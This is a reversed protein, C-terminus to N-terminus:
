RVQWSHQDWFKRLDGVSGNFANHELPRDMNGFYAPSRWPGHHYHMPISRKHWEVGAYQWLAWDNWIGYAEMLDRPTQFGNDHSYLAIWYPCEGIRRKATSPANRLTARLKDSNELYLVPVVGTRQEIRDIFAIIDPVSSRTDMDGVLLIKRDQLCHTASIQRLRDIYQDAQRIPSAGKTVRYYTGLLLGQRDTASLFDACKDDLAGGKGTRAILGLAGNCRLATVDSASYSDGDRQKEKPDYASVNVIKPANSLGARGYGGGGGCCPLM